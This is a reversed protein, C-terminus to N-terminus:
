RDAARAARFRFIGWVLAVAGGLAILHIGTVLGVAVLVPGAVVSVLGKRYSTLFSSM